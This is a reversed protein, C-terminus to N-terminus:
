DRCDEQLDMIINLCNWNFNSTRFKSGHQLVKVEMGLIFSLCSEQKQM